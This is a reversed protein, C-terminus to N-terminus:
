ALWIAYALAGLGLSDHIIHSITCWRISGTKRAYYAYALGLLVAYGVFSYIGGPMSSARVSLPSIHWIGFMISPYIMNMWINNPFLRVYVGRWLIEETVGIVIGILISGLLIALGVQAARPIFITFLPFIIWFWLSFQLKLGLNRIGPNGERFLNLLPRLGGLMYVPFALCWFAWYFVFGMLYGFPYGWWADFVQFAILTSPILLFPMIMLILRAHPREFLHPQAIPKSLATM